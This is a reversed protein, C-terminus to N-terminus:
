CKYGGTILGRKRKTGKDIAQLHTGVKLLAMVPLPCQYTGGNVKKKHGLHAYFYGRDDPQIHLAAYLTSIRGRQNTANILNSDVGAQQCVTNTAGWGSAHKRSGNKTSPFLFQNKEYIGAQKRVIPDALRDLPTICSVLHNWKGSLYFVAMSKVVKRQCEDLKKLVEKDIWQDRETWQTIKIRAPEGRRANFLTLRCCLLNRLEIYEKRGFEEPTLMLQEMIRREIYEKM